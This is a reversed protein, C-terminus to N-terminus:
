LSKASFAQETSTSSSSRGFQQKWQDQQLLLTCLDIFNLDVGTSIINLIEIFHEYSKPLSKLTVFVINAEEMKRGIALLQDRIGQIRNLNARLSTQEDMVIAFLTNKLFFARSKDSTEHLGKLHTWIKAVTKDSPIQSLHHDAVSFKLLM